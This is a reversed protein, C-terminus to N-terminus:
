WRWRVHPAKLQMDNILAETFGKVAFKAVSYATHPTLFRMGVSFGNMSCTNIIYAEPAQLILLM